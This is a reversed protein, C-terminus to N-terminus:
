EKRTLLEWWSSVAQCRLAPAVGRREYSARAERQRVSECFEFSHFRRLGLDVPDGEGVVVVTWTQRARAEAVWHGPGHLPSLPDFLLAGVSLVALVGVVVLTIAVLEALVRSMGGRETCRNFWHIPHIM